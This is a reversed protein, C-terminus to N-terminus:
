GEKHILNLDVWVTKKGDKVLAQRLTRLQIIEGQRKELEITKGRRKTDVYNITEGIQKIYEMKNEYYNLSVFSVNDSCLGLPVLYMLNNVIKHKMMEDFSYLALSEDEIQQFNKVSDDKSTYFIHCEFCCADNNIGNMVGRHHWTLDLGTEETCEREMAQIPTEGAEVKGGIGNLCGAQWDPRKKRALLVQGNETYAFGVVYKEIM